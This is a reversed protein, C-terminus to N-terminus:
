FQIWYSREINMNLIVVVFFELVLIYEIKYFQISIILM